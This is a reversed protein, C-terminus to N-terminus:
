RSQSAPQKVTKAADTERPMLCAKGGAFDLFISFDKLAGSGLVYPYKEQRSPYVRISVLRAHGPAGLEISAPYYQIEHVGSVDMQRITAMQASTRKASAIATGSIYGNDGTDIVINQLVGDVPYKVMLLYAGMPQSAIHLPSDCMPGSDKPKIIVREDELLLAGAKSLVDLGVINFHGGVVVPMSGLEVATGSVGSELSVKKATGLRTTVRSLDQLSFGRSALIYPEKVISVGAFDAAKEYLTTISSGTDLVAPFDHGNVTIGVLYPSASDQFENEAISKATASSEAALKLRPLTVERSPTKVVSGPPFSSFSDFNIEDFGAIYFTDEHTLKGVVPYVVRKVENAVRAWKGISGEINYDGALLQGCMIVTTPNKDVYELGEDYCNKAFKASNGIQFISRYYAAAAYDKLHKPLDSSSISKLFESNGSLLAEQIGNSDKVDFRPPAKVDSHDALAQCSTIVLIVRLVAYFLPRSPGGSSM